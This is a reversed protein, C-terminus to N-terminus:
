PQIEQTEDKLLYLRVRIIKGAEDFMFFASGPVFIRKRDERNTWVASFEVAAATGGWPPRTTYFLQTPKEARTMFDIRWGLQVHQKAFDTAWKRIGEPGHFIVHGLQNENPQVEHFADKSYLELFRDVVPDTEEKGTMSIYWDDLANLRIFWQDVLLEPQLAPEPPKDAKQTQSQSFSFLSVFFLAAGFVGTSVIHRM